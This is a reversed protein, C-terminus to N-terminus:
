SLFRTFVCYHWDGLYLPQSNKFRNPANITVLNQSCLQESDALCREVAFKFLISISRCSSRIHVVCLYRGLKLANLAGCALEFSQYCYHLSKSDLGREPVGEAWINHRGQGPHDNAIM